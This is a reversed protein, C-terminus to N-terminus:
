NVVRFKALGTAMSPKEPAAKVPASKRGAPTLGLSELTKLLHPGLYLAKTILAPDGDDLAEDIASAYSVALDVAALDAEILGEAAGVSMRVSEALSVPPASPVPRGM